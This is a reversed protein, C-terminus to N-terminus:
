EFVLLDDETAISEWAQKLLMTDEDLERKRCASSQKRYDIQQKAFVRMAIAEESLSEAAPVSQPVIEKGTDDVSISFNSNSVFQAAFNQHGYSALKRKIRSINEFFSLHWGGPYIVHEYPIPHQHQLHLRAYTPFRDAGYIPHANALLRGLRISTATLPTGRLSTDGVFCDFNYLYSDVFLKYIRNAADSTPNAYLQRLTSLANVHPIEDTDSILLIDWDNVQPIAELATLASNRSYYENFFVDNSSNPASIVYEDIILHVIRDHYATFLSYNEQFYLPKSRGTFTTRAEVIIHYDVHNQLYRLRLLLMSVEDYFLVTDIVKPTASPYRLTLQLTKEPYPSSSCGAVFAVLADDSLLPTMASTIIDVTNFMPWEIFVHLSCDSVHLQNQKSDFEILLPITDVYWWQVTAFVIPWRLLALSPYLKAVASQLVAAPERTEQLTANIYAYLSVGLSTDAFLILMGCMSMESTSAPLCAITARPLQSTINATVFMSSDIFVVDTEYSAFHATMQAFCLLNRWLKTDHEPTSYPYQHGQVLVLADTSALNTESSDSYVCAHMRQHHQLFFSRGLIEADNKENVLRADYQTVFITGSAFHAM